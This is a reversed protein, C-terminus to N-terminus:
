CDVFFVINWRFSFVVFYKQREKKRTRVAQARRVTAMFGIGAAM